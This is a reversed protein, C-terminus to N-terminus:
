STENRFPVECLASIETMLRESFDSDATWEFPEGFRVTIRTPRPLKAGKPLWRATGLIGAPLVPAGSRKALLEVGRNAPSLRKGDGRRGEPFVLLAWGESLLDLAHRIAAKDAEGRHVPFAGLRRITPGFVPPKFLGAQAMFRVPRHMACAIAPPDAFSVHNPAVILPGTKPVNELGEVRFGGLPTLILYRVFSRTFRYFWDGREPTGAM